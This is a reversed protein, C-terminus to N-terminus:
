LEDIRGTEVQYRDAACGLLRPQVHQAQPVHCHSVANPRIPSLRAGPGGHPDLSAPEASGYSFCGSSWDLQWELGCQVKM